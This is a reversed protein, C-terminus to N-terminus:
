QISNLEVLRGSDCRPRSSTTTPCPKEPRPKPCDVDKFCLVTYATFRNAVGNYPIFCCKQSPDVHGPTLTQNIIVRAFYYPNGHADNGAAVANPPVEGNRAFVWEYNGKKLLEGSYMRYETGGHAIFAGERAKGPLMGGAYLCRFAYIHAGDWGIEECEPRFTAGPQFDVWEAKRAM